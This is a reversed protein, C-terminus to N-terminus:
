LHQFLLSRMGYSPIEVVSSVDQPRYTEELDSDDYPPMDLEDDSDDPYQSAFRTLSCSLSRSGIYDGLLDINHKGTM